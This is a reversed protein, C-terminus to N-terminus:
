SAAARPEVCGTRVMLLTDVGSGAGWVEGPRGHLQRVNTEPDPLALSLFTETEPNFRVIANAGFDTLWVDDEGDVYVAYARPAAGPLRWERWTGSVPDYRGVQGAEWESVWLAGDSAAWVRRPGAGATPPPVADIAFGAAATADLVIRGLYGGALSVFWVEGGPAVAIGYPGRGGPARAVGIAGSAPDLWGVFGTQGTFWLRGDPAFVATNLNAGPATPPLPFVTVAKTSGDVRVLANLGGDTVWAAGDPGVIVGHPASGTGLPIRQVEGTRPDLLGLMGSGQATYWVGEGNAAPAVDHPADGAPVPYTTLPACEPGPTATDQAFAVGAGPVPVLLVAVLGIMVWSSMM